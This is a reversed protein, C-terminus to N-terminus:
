FTDLEVLCDFTSVEVAFAMDTGTPESGRQAQQELWIQSPKKLVSFIFELGDLVTQSPQALVPSAMDSEGLCDVGSM